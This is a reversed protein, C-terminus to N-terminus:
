CDKCNKKLQGNEEVSWKRRKRLNVRKKKKQILLQKEKQEKKFM